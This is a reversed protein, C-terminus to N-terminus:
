GRRTKHKLLVGVAHTGQVPAVDGSANLVVACGFREDYIRGTAPSYEEAQELRSATTM